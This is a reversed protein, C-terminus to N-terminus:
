IINEIKKIIANWSYNNKVFDYGNTGFSNRIDKNNLLKLVKDAIDYSDDPKCILGNKEHQILSSISGINIGIVPKKAAWAEIFTIGFSESKSPNVFIDIANYIKPKDNEEFNDKIIINDSFNDEIFDKITPDFIGAFLFDVNKFSKLIIPISKLLIKINKSENVRGIYGVILKNNIKTKKQLISESSDFKEIDVGGGLNIVNNNPFGKDKIYDKEYQTNALYYDWKKILNILKNPLNNDPYDDIHAAGLLILKKNKRYRNPLLGLFLPSYNISPTFIIDYDGWFAEWFLKFSIPGNNLLSLYPHLNKKSNLLRFKLKKIIKFFKHLPIISFRKVLIGNIKENKKHITENVKQHPSKILNSTLVTIDYKNTALLGESIKQAMLQTGGISPNYCHVITLIRKKRM